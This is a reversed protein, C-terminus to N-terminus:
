IHILSLEPVQRDGVSVIHNVNIYVRDHTLHDWQYGMDDTWQSLRSVTDRAPDITISIMEVNESHGGLNEYVYALNSSIVLCVDPCSTYIFAVVVVKDEYDSLRVDAGNQNKLTFDPAEPPDRYETGILSPGDEQSDMCGPLLFIVIITVAVVERRM